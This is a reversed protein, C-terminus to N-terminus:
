SLYRTTSGSLVFIFLILIMAWLGFVVEVEGLLIGSGLMDHSFIHLISLYKTSFTHTIALAFLIAAILQISTPDIM